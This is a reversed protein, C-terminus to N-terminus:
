QATGKPIRHGPTRTGFEFPSDCPLRLLFGVMPRRFRPSEDYPEQLMRLSIQTDFESKTGDRAFNAQLGIKPPILGVEPYLRLKIRTWESSGQWCTNCRFSCPNPLVRAPVLAPIFAGLPPPYDALKHAPKRLVKVSGGSTGTEDRKQTRSRGYRRIMILARTHAPRRVQDTGRHRPGRLSTRSPHSREM